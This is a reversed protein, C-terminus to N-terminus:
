GVVGGVSEGIGALFGADYVGAGLAEARRICGVVARAAMGMPSIECWGGYRRIRM